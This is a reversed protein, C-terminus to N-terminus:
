VHIGIFIDVIEVFKKRLSDEDTEYLWQAAEAKNKPTHMGFVKDIAYEAEFDSTIM